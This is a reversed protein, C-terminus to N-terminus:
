AAPGNERTILLGVAGMTTGTDIPLEVFEGSGLEAAVV